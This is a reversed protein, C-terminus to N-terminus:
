VAGLIDFTKLFYDQDGQEKLQISINQIIHPRLIAQERLM